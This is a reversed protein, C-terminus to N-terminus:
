GVKFNWVIRKPFGRPYGKAELRKSKSFAKTTAIFPECQFNCFYVVYINLIM